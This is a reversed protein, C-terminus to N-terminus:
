VFRTQHAQMAFWSNQQRWLEVEQLNAIISLGYICPPACLGLDELSELAAVVVRVQNFLKFLVVPLQITHM